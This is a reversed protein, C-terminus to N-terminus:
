RRDQAADVAAAIGDALEDLPRGGDLVYRWLGRSALTEYGRLREALVDPPTPFPEHKLQARRMSEEVPILLLFSIDPRPTAWVLLRWLLSRDFREQPFNLRFDLESDALYRDCIVAHGRWRQSRVQVGYVWLLDLMALALWLRRTGPRAMAEKRQQSPGAPPVARGRSLRRLAAKVASFLPTYGGRTWIVLPNHGERRLREALREIQTSKGAGDLGSFVILIGSM